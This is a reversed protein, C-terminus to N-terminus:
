RKDYSTKKQIRGAGEGPVRSGSSTSTKSANGTTEEDM